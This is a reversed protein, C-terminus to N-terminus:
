ASAVLAAKMFPSALSRGFLNCKVSYGTNGGNENRGVTLPLGVCLILRVEETALFRPLANTIRQGLRRSIQSGDQELKQSVVKLEDISGAMSWWTHTKLAPNSERYLRFSTDDRGEVLWYRRKDGDRGWPQVSLPQNLDDDQRSQKYSEKIIHSIADSCHLSWMILARLLSLQCNDSICTLSCIPDIIGKSNSEHQQLEERGLHPQHQEMRPAM